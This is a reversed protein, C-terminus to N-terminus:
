GYPILRTGTMRLRLTDVIAAIHAPIQKQEDKGVVSNKRYCLSEGDWYKTVVLLESVAKIDIGTDRVRFCVCSLGEKGADKVAKFYVSTKM